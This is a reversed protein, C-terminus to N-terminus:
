TFDDRDFPFNPDNPNAGEQHLIGAGDVYLGSVMDGAAHDSLNFQLSPQYLTPQDYKQYAFFNTTAVQKGGTFTYVPGAGSTNGDFVTEVVNNAMDRRNQDFVQGPDPNAPDYSPNLLYLDRNRMGELAASDAASQMQNQTLRAFGLDIVLAALALFGFTLVVFMVLTNGRRPRRQRQYYM